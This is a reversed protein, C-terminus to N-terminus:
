TRNVTGHFAQQTCFFLFVTECVCFVFCLTLADVCASEEMGTIEVMAVDIHECGLEQTEHKKKQQSGQFRGAPGFGCIGQKGHMESLVRYFVWAGAPLKGGRERRALRPNVSVM